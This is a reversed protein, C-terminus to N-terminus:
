APGDLVSRITEALSVISFPKPLLARIGINSNDGESFRKSYGTCIIVPLDPRVEMLAKALRDGTMHPMTMDSIVLDFEDPRSRFLDLAKTSSIEVTVSYGLSKLIRGGMKLVPREDDVLLIRESGTPVEKVATKKQAGAKKAVPLYLSFVSGAGPESEVTIYGGYSDIIGKVVALGMGTGKEAKKTTFYPDFIRDIIESSIGTGTDSIRLLIYPRKKAAIEKGSIAPSANIDRLSIYLTGGEMEMAHASNTCLNMLIQHIQIPSGIIQSRSQIDSEIKISSPISSRIFKIVEKAIIDVRISEMKEDSQRAFTLIQKVLEKARMGGALIENLDGTLASNKEAQEIALHTFGIIVALMNNFDHAIGGALTGISELKQSHALRKELEIKEKHFQHIKTVDTIAVLVKSFGNVEKNLVSNRIVVDLENGKFDLYRANGEYRDQGFTFAVIQDILLSFDKHYRLPQFVKLFVDVSGARYLEVAAANAQVTRIGAILEKTKEINRSLQERLEEPTMNEALGQLGKIVGSYDQVLLATPSNEFLAKYFSESEILRNEARRQNTIDKLLALYCTEGGWNIQISRFEAVGDKGDKRTVNVEFTTNLQLPTGLRKGILEKKDTEFIIEAAPNVYLIMGEKDLIVIGDINNAVLHHFEAESVKRDAERNIREIANRITRSLSLVTLHERILYDRCGYQFAQYAIEEDELRSILLVPPSEVTGFIRKVSEIERGDRLDTGLIVLDFGCDESWDVNHPICGAVTIKCQPSRVQSLLDYVPLENKKLDEVLLIHIM